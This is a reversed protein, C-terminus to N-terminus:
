DIEKVMYLGNSKKRLSFSENKYPSIADNGSEDKIGDLNFTIYTNVKQAAEVGIFEWHHRENVM